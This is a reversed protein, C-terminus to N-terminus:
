ADKADDVAQRAARVPSPPAAMDNAVADAMAQAHAQRAKGVGEEAVTVANDAAYVAAKTREIAARHREAALRAEDAEKLAVVLAERLPDAAPKNSIVALAM